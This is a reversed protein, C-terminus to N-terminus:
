RRARRRLLAFGPVLGAGLLSLTGPEPVAQISGFLGHQEGQIGASFYLKNTAGGNGGNGFMLTWLGDISIKQGSPDTLTGLFAGTTPNFANIWGNGVSPDGFNFNGVLLANSFAGFSSPAITLGWPLNMAGGATLRRLFNGNTDYVDVFGGGVTRNTPSYAVYLSGNLNQINFPAFGTPVGLPSTFNGALTAAGFAGNFVDITNGTRNAAYLFTGSGNSGIALGTYVSGPKNVAVFAKNNASPIGANLTPSWGSIVGDLGAFIFTSRASASTAPNTVFFDSTGGNNFVQGSPAGKGGAANPVAVILAQPTGATNYLTSTGTGQNSTWFPGTPSYSVGWPNVLASDTFTALGPIDSVLNQQFFQAHVPRALTAAFLAITAFQALRRCPRVFFM